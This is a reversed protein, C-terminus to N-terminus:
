RVLKVDTHRVFLIQEPSEHFSGPDVMLLTHKEENFMAIYKRSAVTVQQNPALYFVSESVEIESMSTDSDTSYLVVDGQAKVDFVREKM